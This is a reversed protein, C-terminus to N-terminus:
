AATLAAEITAGHRELWAQRRRIVDGVGENWMRLWGGGNIEARRKM